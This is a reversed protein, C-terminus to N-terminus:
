AHRHRGGALSLCVVALSLKGCTKGDCSADPDRAAALACTKAVLRTGKEVQHAYEAASPLRVSTMHGGLHFMRHDWGGPEVRSVPLAAWQPFQSDVLRRALATDILLHRM